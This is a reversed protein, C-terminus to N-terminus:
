LLFDLKTKDLSSKKQAVTKLKNRSFPTGKRDNGKAVAEGGRIDPSPKKWFCSFGTHLFFAKWNRPFGRGM